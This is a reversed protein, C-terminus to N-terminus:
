ELLIKTSEQPSQVYVIMGDTFLSMEEKGILIGKIEKEQRIADALVELMSKFLLPSFHCRQRIGSRLPFADPKEGNLVINATFQVRDSQSCEGRTRTQQNTHTHTHTYFSHTNSKTLDKKQEKLTIMHNKKVKTIHYIIDISERFNLRGQM